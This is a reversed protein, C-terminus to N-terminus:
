CLAPKRPRAKQRKHGTIRSFYLAQRCADSCTKADARAPWFLGGCGPATCWAPRTGHRGPLRGFVLVANAFTLGAGAGGFAIRHPWDRVLSAAPANERWWRTSRDAPVLCVVLEANGAGVEARAKALWKRLSGRSYPPNLWIRGKWPESLGDDDRTFYVPAKANGISAAPDLDFPGFEAALLDVVEQPTAQEDNV